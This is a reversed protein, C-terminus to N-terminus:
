RQPNLMDVRPDPHGDIVGRVLQGTIPALTIGVMGHGSAVVVGDTWGITPLGDYTCPRAGAWGASRASHQWAPMAEIGARQIGDLRRHDVGPRPNRDLVMTGALRLAQPLPTM